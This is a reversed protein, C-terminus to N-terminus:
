AAKGIPESFFTKDIWAEAEVKTEPDSMLKSYAATSTIHAMIKDNKNGETCGEAKKMANKAWKSEGINYAQALLKSTDSKPILGVVVSALKKADLGERKPNLAVAKKYTALANEVDAITATEFKKFM